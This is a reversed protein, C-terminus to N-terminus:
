FRLHIPAISTQKCNLAYSNCNVKQVINKKLNKVMKTNQVKFRNICM